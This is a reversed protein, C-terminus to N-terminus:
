ERARVSPDSSSFRTSAGLGAINLDREQMIRVVTAQRDPALDAPIIEGDLLRIELGAYGNEAAVDAAHELTWNPCGLTSYVLPYM